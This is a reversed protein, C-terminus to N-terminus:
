SRAATHLDRPPMAMIPAANIESLGERAGVARSRRPIGRPVVTPSCGRWSGSWSDQMAREPRAPLAAGQWRPRRAIWSKCCSPCPRYEGDRGSHRDAPQATRAAIEALLDYVPETV